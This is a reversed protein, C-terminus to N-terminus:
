ACAGCVVCVVRCARASPQTMRPNTFPVVHRVLHLATEGSQVSRANVPAGLDVMDAVLNM